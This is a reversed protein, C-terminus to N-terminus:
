LHQVCQSGLARGDWGVVVPLIGKHGGLSLQSSGVNLSFFDIGHIGFMLM